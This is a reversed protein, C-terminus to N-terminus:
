PRKDRWRIIAALQARERDTIDTAQILQASIRKIAADSMESVLDQLVERFLGDSNKAVAKGFNDQLYLRWARKVAGAQLFAKQLPNM